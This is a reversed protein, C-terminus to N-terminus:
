CSNLDSFVNLNFLNLAQAWKWGNLRPLCTPVNLTREKEWADFLIEGSDCMNNEFSFTGFGRRGCMHDVIQKM